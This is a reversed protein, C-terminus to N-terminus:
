STCEARPPSIGSNGRRLGGAAAPRGSGSSALRVSPAGRTRGLGWEACGETEGGWGGRGRREQRGPPSSKRPSRNPPTRPANAANKQLMTPLFVSFSSIKRKRKKARVRLATVIDCPTQCFLRRGRFDFNEHTRRAHMRQKHIRIRLGDCIQSEGSKQSIIFAREAFDNRLM